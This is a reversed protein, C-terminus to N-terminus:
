LEPPSLDLILTDAARARKSSELPPGKRVEQLEVARLMGQSTAAVSWDKGRNM